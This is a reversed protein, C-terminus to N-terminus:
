GNSLQRVHLRMPVMEGDVFEVDKGVFGNKRGFRRLTVFSPFLTPDNEYQPIHIWGILQFQGRLQKIAELSPQILGPKSLNSFLGDVMLVRSPRVRRRVGGGDRQEDRAQAFDALKILVMLFVANKQGTSLKDTLREPRGGAISPHELKVAPGSESKAAGVFVARYFEKGIRERLAQKRKKEETVSTSAGRNFRSERLELDERIVEVVQRAAADIQESDVVDAEIHLGAAGMDSTPKLMRKLLRFNERIQGTFGSMSVHMRERHREVDISVNRTLESLKNVQEYALGHLQDIGDLVAMRDTFLDPNINDREHATLKSSTDAAIKRAEACAGDIHRTEDKRLQRFRRLGEGLKFCAVNAVVDDMTDILKDLDDGSARIEAALQAAARAHVNPGDDQAPAVIEGRLADIVQAAERWHSLLNSVHADLKRGFREDAYIADKITNCRKDLECLEVALRGINGALMTRRALKESRYDANRRAQAGREANAFNFRLKQECLAARTMLASHQGDFTGDFAPGDADVYGTAEALRSQWLALERSAVLLAKAARQESRTAEQLASNANERGTIAAEAATKAEGLEALAGAFRAAGGLDEYRSKADVLDLRGYRAEATPWEQEAEDLQACLAELADAAAIVAPPGGRSVFAQQREILVISAASARRELDPLMAEIASLTDARAEMAVVVALLREAGGANHFSCAERIGVVVAPVLDADVAALAATLEDRKRESEALRSKAGEARCADEIRLGLTSSPELELMATKLQEITRETDALAIKALTIREAVKGPDVLVEVAASERGWLLGRVVAATDAEIAGDRCYAQLAGRHFVPFDVGEAELRRLVAEANDAEDLVPAHLVQSFQALVMRRRPASLDLSSVVEHVRDTAGTIHLAKRAMRGAATGASDLEEIERQGEEQQSIWVPLEGQHAALQQAREARVDVASRTLGFTEAFWDLSAVQPTLGDIVTQTEALEVRLKTQTGRLSGELALVDCAGFRSTVAGLAVRGAELRAREIADRAAEDILRERQKEAESLAKSVRAVLGDPVENGFVEAYGRADDQLKTLVNLQNKQQAIEVPLKSIQQMLDRYRVQIRERLGRWDEQTFHEAFLDVQPQLRQLDSQVESLARLATERATAVKAAAELTITADSVAATAAEHRATSEAESAVLRTSVANPAEGPFATVVEGYAVRGAQLELRRQQLAQEQTQVTEREELVATETMQPRDLEDATFLGSSEMELLVAEAAELQELATAIQMQEAEAEGKEGAAASLRKTVAELEGRVGRARARFPNCEGAGHRAEYAYTLARLTADRDWGEAFKTAKVVLQRAGNLTYGSNPHGRDRASFTLDCPNEIVQSGLRIREVRDRDARQNLAGPSELLLGALVADPVLWQGDEVVLRNALFRTQDGGHEWPTPIGPLPRTLVAEELWRAEALHTAAVQQRESRTRRYIEVASNAHALREYLDEWEALDRRTKQLKQEAEVLPLASNVLTDEFRYEDPEGDEQMCGVLVEPAIHEYFFDSDYRGGPTRSVRFLAEAGDGGGKAHYEAAKNLTHADIHDHVHEQWVERRTGPDCLMPKAKRQRDFEKNPVIIQKTGDHHVVPLDELCGKYHYFNLGDDANGFFGFVYNEGKVEHGILKPQNASRAEYTVELRVHTYHGWARGASKERTKGVLDPKRTLIAYIADCLSTKGEGNGIKIATSVGGFEIPVCRWHPEWDRSGPSENDLNLFNIIELRNFVSM